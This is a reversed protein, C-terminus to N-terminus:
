VNRGSPEASLRKRASELLVACPELCPIVSKGAAADLELRAVSWLRRKLCRSPRCCESVVEAVQADSLKQTVRYMGTQRDTFERYHTVPPNPTQAAFWDALAGPYLRSLATDLEVADKVFVRWGGPLDPSAKLPRFAGTVTFQALGRLQEVGVLKLDASAAACDSLQRLEFGNDARQILVQAFALEQGLRAVFAETAPNIFARM